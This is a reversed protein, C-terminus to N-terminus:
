RDGEDGTADGATADGATADSITAAVAYSGTAGAPVVAGFSTDDIRELEVEITSGDPATVQAVPAVGAPWATGSELDLFMSEGRIDARLDYGDAGELPFTDRVVTSWFDAWGDWAAWPAAWREGSDATWTTVKGLGIRWSALLPDSFEGVQLLVDATDKPTAALFGSLPPAADLGRVPAATSTVVPVYEGENIFSRSAIRAEEVFIEPIEDLDRGPYFRGNGALAISELLPAAGEGTAVVSVTIGEEALDAAQQEMEEVGGSFAPDGFGEGEDFLEPTFGDTFLIIHKM